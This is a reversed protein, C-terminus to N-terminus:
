PSCIVRMRVEVTELLFTHAASLIATQNASCNAKSLGPQVVLIEAVVRKSKMAQQIRGLTAASGRLYPNRGAKLRTRARRLLHAMLDRTRWVWKASRVAQACVEVVDKLREGPEDAGSFKCHVLVLEVRDAHEKFCVLDAAEGSGDDDIVLDHAAAIFEKAMHGQISDPRLKGDKWMSEVTIDVGPWSRDSFQTPPIPTSTPDKPVTLLTGDLESLDTFRFIPPTESLFGELSVQERASGISLQAGTLQTIKFGAESHLEFSFAADLGADGRVHFQVERDGLRAGAVLDLDGFPSSRGEWGVTLHEELKSVLEIPWDVALLVADPLKDIEKPILVHTLIKSTDISADLLKTGVTTCWEVFRPIPGHGRQSWIRGKYSCGVAVPHGGEWGTGTLNSKISNATQAETLAKEVDSGTYMAYSINRRGHKRVGVNQFLLRNINGLTRFVVDGQIPKVREKSDLVVQALLEHLSGNDSSHVFLLRRPEDFHVVTLDWREDHIEKSSSWRVPLPTKTVFYLTNAKYLWVGHIRTGDPIAEHFRKPRFKKGPYVVTSFRPRLLRPSIALHTPEVEDEDLRKSERVFDILEAHDRVATSSLESLLHNWDADESYLRELAESVNADAINAVVTADGVDSPGNRTFRGTFQLIVALSKHVDHVAAVKLQPLDFGEGLMDVCVVVRSKGAVVQAVLKEVEPLDSHVLLPSHEGALAQYIELVSTARKISDCRAMLLHDLGRARDANLQEVAAKAISRDKEDADVEFVPRFSIPKFFGEEQARRLPYSYVVEGDVIKGDRRFPTATFQLIRRGLLGDRLANWTPAAVHHAEDVFLADVREELSELLGEDACHALASMTTIVVNCNDFVEAIEEKSHPRKNVIGVIPNPADEPLVGLQRLLGLTRFKRATQSRLADSPVVILTPSCALGVVCTLMTETKGTGTPMVVTAPDTGLTWHAAIAHLAGIQPPRLCPRGSGRGSSPFQFTARWADSIVKVQSSYGSATAAVFADQVKSALWTPAEGDVIRLVADVDDPRDATKQQTVLIREENSLELLTAKRGSKLRSESVEKITLSRGPRLVHQITGIRRRADALRLVPLQIAEGPIFM